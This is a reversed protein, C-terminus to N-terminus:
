GDGTAPASRAHGGTAAYDPTTMFLSLLGTLVFIVIEYVLAMDFAQVFASHGPDSAMQHALTQFFVEGIAAVGIASGVQQFTRLAGSGAGADATPVASLIANFLPAIVLGLGLGSIFLPGLLVLPRIHDEMGSVFLLLLAMCVAILAAGGRIRHLPWRNGFKASVFSAVFVGLSFPFTTLGSQLPTFEFGTQLFIAFVMFFGSVGSFFVLTMATGAVFNRSGFLATPLLQPRQRRAHAREVMAFGIFGVIGAAMMGFAWAPWGYSRGEILPFVVLFVSVAAIAVGAIDISVRADRRSVPVVALAGAIAILGVPLNVLFIPRWDLGYINADVLVGGVLPGAVSALGAVTGFLAFVSGREQPPFITQAIALGQPMMAAAFAGQFARAAILAEMSPAFGCSASAITFGCVGIIFMRRHGLLDGLRGFPLLGLAFVLIYTAVVWEIGSSTAHLNEKMSPLAVNVITVDILNMFGALLIVSLALWRKEYPAQPTEAAPPSTTM